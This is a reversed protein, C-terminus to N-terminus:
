ATCPDNKKQLHINFEDNRKYNVSKLKIVHEDKQATCPMKVAHKQLKGDPKPLQGLAM